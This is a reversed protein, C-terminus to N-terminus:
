ILEVKMSTESKLDAKIQEEVTTALSLGVYDVKIPFMKHKRDVLAAVEIKKPLVNMCVKCAYFITRGTNAVDDIIILVQNKLKSEGIEITVEQSLPDAPNISIRTLTVKRDGITSLADHILKACRYGNNNIGALIIEKEKYNNELIEYALRIIKQSIQDHSLVQM